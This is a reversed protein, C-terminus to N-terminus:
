NSHNTMVKGQQCLGGALSTFEQAVSPITLGGGFWGCIWVCVRTVVMLDVEDYRKTQVNGECRWTNARAM